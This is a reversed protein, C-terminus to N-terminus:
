GCAPSGSLRTLKLGYHIKDNGHPVRYNTQAEVSSYNFDDKSLKFLSYKEYLTESFAFTVM